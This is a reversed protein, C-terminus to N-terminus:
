PREDSEEKHLYNHVCKTCVGMWTPQWGHAGCWTKTSTYGGMGSVEESIEKVRQMDTTIVPYQKRGLTVMVQFM